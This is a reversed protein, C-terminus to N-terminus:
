DKKCFYLAIYPPMNNHPQDGGTPGVGTERGLMEVKLPGGGEKQQKGGSLDFYPFNTNAGYDLLAIRLKSDDHYIAVESIAALGHRHSPMQPETLIVTEAGGIEKLGYFQWVDNEVMYPRLNIEIETQSDPDYVKYKGYKKRFETDLKGDDPQGAGIPFRGAAEQYM